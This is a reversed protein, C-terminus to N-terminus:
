VWIALVGMLFLGTAVLLWKALRGGPEHLEDRLIDLTAVYAFSGAALALVSAEIGHRVPGDLAGGMAMGLLIGTPTALSFLGLLSWALRAPLPSRALSIGLAFGDVAKHGLIAVAIVLAGGLDPEAGLALGALLSHASLATLVTYATLERREQRGIETFRDPLPTHVIEHATEPLLAHEFLLMLLFGGAAMLFAVPYEVGLEQWADVAEPLMHILGAGLFVGAAFANGFSLLHGASLSRRRLPLAGGLLGAALISTMLALKITLM